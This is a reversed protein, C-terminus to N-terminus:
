KNMPIILLEIDDHKSLYHKASWHLVCEPTIYLTKKKYNNSDFMPYDELFNVVKMRTKKINADTIKDRTDSTLNKCHIFLIEKNKIAILDIGYGIKSKDNSHSAVIYNMNKYKDYIFKEYDDDKAKVEDKNIVEPQNIEKFYKIHKILEFNNKIREHWVTYKQKNKHNYRGFAGKSKGLSTPVSWREKHELWKLELFIKNLEISTLKFHTALDSEGIYTNNYVKKKDETRKSLIGFMVIGTYVFKSSFVLLFM